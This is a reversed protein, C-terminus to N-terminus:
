GVARVWSDGFGLLEESIRVKHRQLIVLPVMLNFLDIRGNLKEARERFHRVAWHHAERLDSDAVLLGERSGLMRELWLLQDELFRQCEDLGARIEKDLEIWGLTFGAAQLVRYALEHDPKVYPNESLDLPKGRGPLDDFFGEDQADSIKREVLGPCNM